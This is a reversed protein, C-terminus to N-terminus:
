GTKDLDASRSSVSWDSVDTVRWKEVSRWPHLSCWVFLLGDYMEYPYVDRVVGNHAVTMLLEREQCEAICEELTM